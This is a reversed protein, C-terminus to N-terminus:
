AAPSSRRHSSTVSPRISPGPPCPPRLVCAKWSFARLCSSPSRCIPASSRADGPLGSGKSWRRVAGLALAILVAVGACDLVFKYGLYFGGQLFQADFVYHGVDWDLTALATGCFLLFFGWALVAHLRGARTERIKKQTFVDALVALLRAKKDKVPHPEEAGRLWLRLNRVIGAVLLAVAAIGLVYVGIEGWLPVNWFAPRIPLDTM